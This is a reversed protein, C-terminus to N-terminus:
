QGDLRRPEQLLVPRAVEQVALHDQVALRVEEQAAQHVAQEVPGVQVVVEELGEHLPEVQVVPLVQEGQLALGLLNIVAQDLFTRGRPLHKGDVKLHHHSFIMMTMTKLNMMSMMTKTMGIM